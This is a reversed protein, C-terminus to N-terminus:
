QRFIGVLLGSYSLRTLALWFFVLMALPAFIRFYGRDRLGFPNWLDRTMGFVFGLYMPIGSLLRFISVQSATAHLHNKLM